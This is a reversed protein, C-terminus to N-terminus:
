RSVTIAHSTATPIYHAYFCSFTSFLAYPMLLFFQMFIPLYILSIKQAVRTGSENTKLRNGNRAREATVLQM